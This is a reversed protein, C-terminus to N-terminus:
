EGRLRGFEKSILKHIHDTQRIILSGRSPMVAVNGPGGVDAWSEPAVEAILHEILSDYDDGKGKRVLDLVDYVMLRQVSKPEGRRVAIPPLPKGPITSPKVRRLMTLAGLLASVEAVGAETQRVSMTNQNEAFTITGMGGVKDWTEPLVCSEILEVLFDRDDGDTALERLAFSKTILEVAPLSGSLLLTSSLFAIAGILRSM